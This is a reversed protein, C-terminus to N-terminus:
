TEARPPPATCLLLRRRALEDQVYEFLHDTVGPCRLTRNFHLHLLLVTSTEWLPAVPAVPAVADVSDSDSDAKPDHHDRVEPYLRHHIDAM